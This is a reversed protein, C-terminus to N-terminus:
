KSLNNILNKRALARQANLEELEKELRINEAYKPSEYAVNQSVMRLGSYRSIEIKKKKIEDDLKAILKHLDIDSKDIEPHLITAITTLKFYLNKIENEREEILINKTALQSELNLKISEYIKIREEHISSSFIWCLIIGFIFGGILTVVPNKEKLITFIWDM